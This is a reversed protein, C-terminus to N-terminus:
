CYKGEGDDGEGEKWARQCRGPRIRIHIPLTFATKNADISEVYRGVGRLVACKQEYGWPPSAGLEIAEYTCSLVVCYVFAIGQDCGKFCGGM